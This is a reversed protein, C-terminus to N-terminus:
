AFNAGRKIGWNPLDFGLPNRERGQEMISVISNLVTPKYWAEHSEHSEILDMMEDRPGKMWAESSYFEEQSSWLQEPSDYARILVYGDPDGVTPGYAVVEMGVAALMPISYQEVLAHFQTQMGPKLRYIRFEVYVRADSM